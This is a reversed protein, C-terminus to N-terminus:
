ELEHTIFFGPARYFAGNDAGASLEFLSPTTDGDLDGHARFSYIAGSEVGCRSPGAEIEYQYYIPDPLTFGLAAFSPHDISTLTPDAGPTNSTRAPGVTCHTRVVGGPGHHEQAYYVSAGTYLARLNATAEVTKSRRVYSIFAPLAVAAIVGTCPICGLLLAAAVVLTVVTKSSKSKSDSM